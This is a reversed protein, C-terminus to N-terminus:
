DYIGGFRKMNDSTSKKSDSFDKQLEKYKKYNDWKEQLWSKSTHLAEGASQYIPLELEGRRSDVQNKRIASNQYAINSSYVEPMKTANIYNQEATKSNWKAEEVKHKFVERELGTQQVVADAQATQNKATAEKQDVDAQAQKKALKTASWEGLPNDFSYSPSAVSAMSAGSGGASLIPNLGAKKLDEVEWQHANQAYEKQHKWSVEAQKKTASYGLASSFASGIASAWSM